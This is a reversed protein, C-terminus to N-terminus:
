RASDITARAKTIAEELSMGDRITLDVYYVATRHSQASSKGRLKLELPLCSLLNGSVAKFYSLRAALTWISNYGTTRLYLQWVM